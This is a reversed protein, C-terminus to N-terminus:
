AFESGYIMQLITIVVGRSLYLVPSSKRQLSLATKRHLNVVSDLLSNYKQNHSTADTLM